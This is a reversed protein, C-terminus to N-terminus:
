KTQLHKFNKGCIPVDETWSGDDTCRSIPSGILIYGVRCSYSVVAGEEYAESDPKVFGYAPTGPFGCALDKALFIFLFDRQIFVSLFYIWKIINTIFLSTM